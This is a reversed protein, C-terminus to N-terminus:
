LRTRMGVLQRPTLIPPIRTKRSWGSVTACVEQASPLVLSLTCLVPPLRRCCCVFSVLNQAQATRNDRFMRYLYRDAGTCRVFGEYDEFSIGAREWIKATACFHKLADMEVLPNMENPIAELLAGLLAKATHKHSPTASAEFRKKVGTNHDIRTKRASGKKKKAAGKKRSGVPGLALVEDRLEQLENNEEAGSDVLDLIEANAGDDKMNVDEVADGAGDEESSQGERMQEGDDDGGSSGGSAASDSEEEESSSSGSSHAPPDHKRGGSGAGGAHASPKVSKPAELLRAKKSHRPQKPASDHSSSAAGGYPRKATLKKQQNKEEHKKKAAAEKAAAAKAAREKDKDKESKTRAM